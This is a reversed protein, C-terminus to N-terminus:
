GLALKLGSAFLIAALIGRLVMVPLHRTGLWSGIVGGIAAALAWGPLAPPWSPASLGMGILAPLSTFLNSAQSVAAVRRMSGWKLAMMAAALFVGAGVGTLGAVFGTVGGALLAPVFPIDREAGADEAARMRAIMQAASGLLLAALVMRYATGPLTLIGGLLSLPVGLLAFPYWDRTKLLGSRQYRVIGIASVTLTLVLAALKLVGAPYGFLGMVGVYGVGGAQGVCAFLAAIVAFLVSLVM